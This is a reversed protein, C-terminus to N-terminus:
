GVIDPLEATVVFGDIPPLGALLPMWARRLDEYERSTGRQPSSPIMPEARDWIAQLKALNAAVRDMVQLLEDLDVVYTDWSGM